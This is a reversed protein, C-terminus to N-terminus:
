WDFAVWRGRRDKGVNDGHIDGIWDHYWENTAWAGEQHRPYFLQIEWTRSDSTEVRVTPAFRLNRQGCFERYYAKDEKSCTEKVVFPGIRWAERYCGFGLSLAGLDSPEKGDRLASRLRNLTLRNLTM